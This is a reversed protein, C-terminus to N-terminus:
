DPVGGAGGREGDSRPLLIEFSSGRGPGDSRAWIYGNNQKVAGYV